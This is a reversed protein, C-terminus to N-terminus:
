QKVENLYSILLSLFARIKEKGESSYIKKCNSQFRFGPFVDSQMIAMIGSSLGLYSPNGWTDTQYLIEHTPADGWFVVVAYSRFNKIDWVNSELLAQNDLTQFKNKQVLAPDILHEHGLSFFQANACFSSLLLCFFYIPYKMFVSRNKM